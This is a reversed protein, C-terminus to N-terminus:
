MRLYLVPPPATSPRAPPPSSAQLLHPPTQAGWRELLAESDDHADALRAIAHADPIPQLLLLPPTQAGERELLAEPADHADALRAIAHADPIPQLLLLPPTQAGERDLLAEPDNHDITPWRVADKRERAGKQAENDSHPHPSGPSSRMHHVPSVPSGDGLIRPSTDRGFFANKRSSHNEVVAAAEFSLYSRSSLATSVPVQMGLAHDCLATAELDISGTEQPLDLFDCASATSPHPAQPSGPASAMGVSKIDLSEDSDLQFDEELEYAAWYCASITTSDLPKSKEQRTCVGVSTPPSVYNRNRLFHAGSLEDAPMAHCGGDSTQLTKALRAKNSTDFPKITSSPAAQPKVRARINLRAMRLRPPRSVKVRPHQSPSAPRPFGLKAEMAKAFAASSKMVSARSPARCAPAGAALAWGSFVSEVESRTRRAIMEVLQNWELFRWFLNSECFRDLLMADHQGVAVEIKNAVDMDADPQSPLPSRSRDQQASVAVEVQDRHDRRVSFSTFGPRNGSPSGDLKQGGDSAQCCQNCGGIKVAADLSRRWAEADRKHVVLVITHSEAPKTVNSITFAEAWPQRSKVTWERGLQLSGFLIACCPMQPDSSTCDMHLVSGSLRVYINRFIADPGAPPVQLDGPQPV